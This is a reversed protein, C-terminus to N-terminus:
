ENVVFIEQVTRVPELLFTTRGFRVKANFIEWMIQRILQSESYIKQQNYLGRIGTLDRTITVWVTVLLTSTEPVLINLM